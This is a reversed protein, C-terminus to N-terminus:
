AQTLITMEVDNTPSTTGATGGTTVCAIFAGNTTPLGNGDDGFGITRNGGGDVKFVWEPVDTGITPSAAVDYIKIYVADVNQTNDVEIALLDLGVASIQEAAADLDIDTHKTTGFFTHSAIAM